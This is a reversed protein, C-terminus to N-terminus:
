YRDYFMYRTAELKSKVKEITKKTPNVKVMVDYHFTTDFMEKVSTVDAEAGVRDTLMAFIICMGPPRVTLPYRQLM